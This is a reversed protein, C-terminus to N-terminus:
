QRASLTAYCLMACCLTACCLTAYCLTAYHLVAYHLTAYHLVAYHLTAYRLKADESHQQLEIVEVFTNLDLATIYTTWSQYYGTFLLMIHATCLANKHVQHFGCNGRSTNRLREQSSSQCPSWQCRSPSPASRGPGFASGSRAVSRLLHPGPPRQTAMTICHCWASTHSFSGPPETRHLGAPHPETISHSQATSRLSM